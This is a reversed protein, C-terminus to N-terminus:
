LEIKRSQSHIKLQGSTVEKLEKVGSLVANIQVFNAKTTEAIVRALTTKGTGPPGSFIVSTLADHEIASRLATGSGVIHEQGVFQDLTVPRMRFALPSHGDAM